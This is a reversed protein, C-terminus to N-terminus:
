PGGDSGQTNPPPPGFPHTVNEWADAAYGALGTPIAKQWDTTGYWIRRIPDYRPKGMWSGTLRRHQEVIMNIWGGGLLRNWSLASYWNLIADGYIWSSL